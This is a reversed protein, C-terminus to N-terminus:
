WQLMRRKWMKYPEVARWFTVTLVKGTETDVTTWKEEMVVKKIKATM